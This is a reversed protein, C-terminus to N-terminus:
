IGLIKESDLTLRDLENIVKLAAEPNIRGQIIPLHPLRINSKLLFKMTSTDVMLGHKQGIDRLVNLFKVPIVVYGITDGNHNFTKDLGFKTTMTFDIVFREMQTIGGCLILAVAQIGMIKTIFALNSAIGYGRSASEVHRYKFSPDMSWYNDQMQQLLELSKVNKKMVNLEELTYKCKITNNEYVLFQVQNTEVFSKFRDAEVLRWSKKYIGKDACTDTRAVLYGVRENGDKIVACEHLPKM